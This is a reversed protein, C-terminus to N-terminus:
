VQTRISFQALNIFLMTMRGRSHQYMLEFQAHQNRWDSQESKHTNPNLSCLHCYRSKFKVQLAMFQIGVEIAFVHRM